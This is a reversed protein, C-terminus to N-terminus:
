RTLGESRTSSSRTIPHRSACAGPRISGTGEDSITEAFGEIPEKTENGVPFGSQGCVLNGSEGIHVAGQGAPSGNMQAIQMEIAILWPMIEDDGGDAFEAGVPNKDGAVQEVHRLSQRMHKSKEGAQPFNRRDEDSQAVMIVVTAHRKILIAFEGIAVLDSEQDILGGENMRVTALDGNDADIIGRQM